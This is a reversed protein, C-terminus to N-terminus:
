PKTTFLEKNELIFHMVPISADMFRANDFEPHFLGSSIARSNAEAANFDQQYLYQMMALERMVSVPVITLRDKRITAATYQQLWAIVLDFPEADVSQLALSFCQSVWNVRVPPNGPPLSFLSGMNLDVKDGIGENDLVEHHDPGCHQMPLLSLKGPLHAYVSIDKSWDSSYPNTCFRHNIVTKVKKFKYSSDFVRMIWKLPSQHCEENDENCEEGDELYDTVKSALREEDNDLYDKLPNNDEKPFANALHPPFSASVLSMLDFGRDKYFQFADLRENAKLYFTIYVKDYLLSLL